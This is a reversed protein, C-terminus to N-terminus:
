LPRFLYVSLTLFYGFAIVFGSEPGDRSLVLKVAWDFDTQNMSKASSNQGLLQSHGSCMWKQTVDTEM